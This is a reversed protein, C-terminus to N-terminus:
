LFEEYFLKQNLPSLFMFLIKINRGYKKSFLVKTNKNSFFLIKRLLNM